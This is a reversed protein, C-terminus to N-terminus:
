SAQQKNPNPDQSKPILVQIKYSEVDGGLRLNQLSKMGIMQKYNKFLSKPLTKIFIDVIQDNNQVRVM